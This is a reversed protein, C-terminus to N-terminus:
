RCCAPRASCCTPAPRCCTVTPQCCRPAPTACCAVVPAPRCCAVVPAPHCCTPAPQSCCSAVQIKKEVMHCVNVLIEKEVKHQVMVTCTEEKEEMVPTCTPFCRTGTKKVPVCVTYQVDRTHTECRHTCVKQTCTRKEPKCVTVEYEYPQDECVFKNVTVDVEKRVVEHVWVKQTCTTTQPCCIPRGCADSGQVFTQVPVQRDEWHGGQECVTQKEVTPVCRSVKRVGQRKEVAPVMVTFETTVDKWEPISVQFTEQRTKTEPQYECYEYPVIKQGHVLRCVTVKRTRTEPRCEIVCVKRTETVMEPVLVTKEVMCTPSAACPPPCVPRCCNDASARDSSLAILGLAVVSAWLRLKM